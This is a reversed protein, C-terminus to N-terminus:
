EVDVTVEDWAGSPLEARITHRGPILRWRRSAVEVGDVLWRVDADPAAARLAITAYRPDTGPPIRYLDGGRPSLIRLRSATGLSRSGENRDGLSPRDDALQAEAWEAYQAPLAVRGARHWDCEHTPETGPQFWETMGPCEPGAARGSLRCVRLPILGAEEPQPLAGPPYRRATLLIARQLLPGAGTVGSVAAMPRGSFNGAWVAVTFRETTGIAWNDTYRRSTGTKVAVPFPFDFPSEVGFGPIRAVPDSLIHLVLHAAAASVVRRERDAGGVSRNAPAMEAPTSGARPDSWRYHRWIGGNALARYGNALELLTVDGNGLALGIGYHESGATLSTFGARHLTALFSGPGLRSALEVAPVNYSSALAERIRVPGRFRRDYNRPRYLGATTAYTKPIDPLVSSATHGRDFALGYLFPKLASGPQRRSVVMDVQGADQSWFDPSGVWALIDGSGNDLVVAAAQEVKREALLDVTHRVEAELGKQLELDLTTRLEGSIPIDGRSGSEILVYTTFHPALFPSIREREIVPEALARRAAAPTAYGLELLRQVVRTRRTRARDPAVLPNDRSPAHALAALLAAQGLSLQSAPADFYLDAAAAVGVTGQGLPLRNLYLELIRQKELQSELRLAWFTQRLKGTWTRPIRLLLRATQMSITSAGSVIERAAVNDRVARLVARLDVGGHQYFREDEVALVARLLDPDIEELSAWGGRSGDPARDSRLPIGHRDLLVLSPVPGPDAIEQPLPWAVWSLMLGAALFPLSAALGVLRWRRSRLRSGSRSPAM